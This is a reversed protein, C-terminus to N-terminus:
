DFRKVPRHCYPQRNNKSYYYQHYDEAPWFTQVDLLKTAVPYGKKQLLQILDGAITRQEDTYCFVASQYQPGIDPGQGSRQTPDHIEFFRRLVSQYDTVQRDFLVRAAEYHGTNGQCVQQYGPDQVHGGTYGVEVNLVGPLLSLFHEVGWFCGGAVIAEESDMVQDYNVFDISVSNVCHRLNNHTFHEGTFVHGLHADCRDCLIETRQGDADPEQRVAQIINDDFSPWGCGSQFQSSARFLALGCRRCLYTGTGARTQYSGTGPYETAKDCIVRRALPSLSATKDLYTAM